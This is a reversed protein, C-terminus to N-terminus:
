DPVRIRGPEAQAVLLIQMTLIKRCEPNACYVCQIMYPGFNWAYCSVAPLETGCHPCCPPPPLEPKELLPTNTAPQYKNPTTM